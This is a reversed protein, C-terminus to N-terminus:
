ERPPSCIPGWDDVYGHETMVHLFSPVLLSLALVSRDVATRNQNGGYTSAGLALQQVTLGVRELLESLFATPDIPMASARALYPDIWMAAVSPRLTEFAIPLIGDRDWELMQRAFSGVSEREALPSALLASWRAFLAGTAAWLEILKTDSQSAERGEAVSLWTLSRHVRIRVDKYLHAQAYTDRRLKWLKRLLEATM